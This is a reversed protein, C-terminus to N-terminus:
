AVHLTVYKPYPRNNAISIYWMYFLINQIAATERSLFLGIVSYYIKSLLPREGYFFVVTLLNPLLSNILLIPQTSIWLSGVCCLIFVNDQPSRESFNVYEQSSPNLEKSSLSYTPASVWFSIVHSLIFVMHWPAASQFDSMKWLRLTSSKKCPSHAPASNSLPIVCSLTFNTHWLAVGEADPGPFHVDKQSSPNVPPHSAQHQNGFLFSMSFSFFSELCVFSSSCSLIFMKNSAVKWILFKLKM